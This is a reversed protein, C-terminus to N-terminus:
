QRISRKPRLKFTISSGCMLSIFKSKRRCLKKCQNSVRHFPNRLLKHKMQRRIFCVDLGTQHRIDKTEQNTYRFNRGCANFANSGLLLDSSLIVPTTLNELVHFDCIYVDTETADSGFDWDKIVELRSQVLTQQQSFTETVNENQVFAWEVNSILGYTSAISGDIFELTIISDLDTKPQLGLEEAFERSMLNVDSGTDPAASIFHGNISGTVMQKPGELLCVRPRRASLARESWELCESFKTFLEIQQLFWNGIVVDHLCNRVIAFLQFHRSDDSGLSFNLKVTGLSDIHNGNPLKFTSQCPEYIELNHKRFFEESIVNITSCTDPVAM